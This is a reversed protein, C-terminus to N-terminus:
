YGLRGVGLYSTGIKFYGGATNATTYAYMDSLPVGTWTEEWRQGFTGERRLLVIDTDLQTVADTIDLTIVSGVKLDPNGPIPGLTVLLPPRSSRFARLKAVLQAQAITQLTYRVRDTTPRIDSRRQIDLLNLTESYEQDPDRSIPRATVEFKDVVMAHMSNSNVFVVDSSKAYQPRWPTSNDPNKVTLNSNLSVGGATRANTELSVMQGIPYNFHVTETSNSGPPVVFPETPQYVVTAQGLATPQYHAVVKDFVNADDYNLQVEEALSVSYTAESAAGVWHAWAWYKLKGDQPDVWCIGSESEAAERM